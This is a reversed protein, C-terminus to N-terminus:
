APSAARRRPRWRCARRRIARSRIARCSRAPTPAPRSSCAPRATTASRTAPGRPPAASRSGRPRAAPSRSPSAPLRTSPSRTARSRPAPSSGPGFQIGSATNIAITNAATATTGGIALSSVGGATAIGCQDNDVIRNGVISSGTYTGAALEIGHTGNGYINNGQNALTGGLTLGTAAAATVIGARGNDSIQTNRVTTGTYSGGAFQIGNFGNLRLAIGDITTGTSGGAFSLGNEAFNQITLVIGSLGITNVGAGIILGDGGAGASSGDITIATTTGSFQFTTGSVALTPLTSLAYITGASLNKFVIADATGGSNVATIAARLSGAGSDALTTVDVALLQRPELREM